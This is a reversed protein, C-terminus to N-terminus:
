RSAFARKIGYCGSAISLSALFAGLVFAGPMISFASGHIVTDFIIVAVTWLAASIAVRSYREPFFGACVAGIVFIPDLAFGLAAVLPITINHM